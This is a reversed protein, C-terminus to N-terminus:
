YDFAAYPKAFTLDKTVVVNFRYGPRIEITPAINMNRAILQATVQGLQQGLAQSMADGARQRNINTGTTADQQSVTVGATIGSLLFASAFLRAYHNNVSDAFGSYGAADAGPMAGIDMAKGDPFIIRQWAVLVRAQGYAVESSYAGVLRSGQPILVYRGTPTDYVDQAVQGMIQGPLDSNVGSILTAPVVFGARLEFASRPAEPQSDLRWRDAEGSQFQSLGNRPAAGATNRMAPLAASAINQANGTPGQMGTSVNSGGMGRIQALRAQYAATPDERQVQDMQQRVNAIQALMDGRSQPQGGQAFQTQGSNRPPAMPVNTRAKAAEELMQLKLMRIRSAEDDRPPELSAQPAALTTPQQGAPARLNGAIGGPPLMQGAGPPLPPADLNDTKAILIPLQNLDNVPSAAAVLSGEQDAVLKMALLSTNGAKEKPGAVPMAQNDARDKAVLMMILVFGIVASGFIMVPVNNVRRVGATKSLTLPSSKPDMPDNTESRTNM